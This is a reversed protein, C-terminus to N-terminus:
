GTGANRRGNRQRCDDFRGNCGYERCYSEYMEGNIHNFYKSSASTQGWRAIRFLEIQKAYGNAGASAAVFFGACAPKKLITGSGEM